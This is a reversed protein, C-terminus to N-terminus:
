RYFINGGLSVTRKLTAFWGPKMWTAHFFLAGGTVDEEPNELVMQAVRTAHAYKVRDPFTEPRGDCRYSFQCGDAIVGCVSGPFRPDEARNLIVNGVARAGPVSQASAEFYIAERLCEFTRPDVEAPTTVARSPPSATETPAAPSAGLDTLPSCAAAFLAASLATIRTTISYLVPSEKQDQPVLFCACFQWLALASSARPHM